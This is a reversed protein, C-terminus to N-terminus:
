PLSQLLLFLLDDNPSLCIYLQHGCLGLLLVPTLNSPQEPWIVICAGSLWQDLEFVEM